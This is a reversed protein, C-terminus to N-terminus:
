SRIEPEPDPTCTKWWTPLLHVATLLTIILGLACVKGLGAM